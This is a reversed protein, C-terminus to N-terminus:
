LRWLLMIPSSPALNMASAKAELLVSETSCHTSM